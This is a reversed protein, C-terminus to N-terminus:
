GRTRTRSSDRKGQGNVPKGSIRVGWDGGHKGEPVKIFDTHIEINSLTDNIVQSAFERGDHQHYGYGEIGDGQDCAHRIGEIFM